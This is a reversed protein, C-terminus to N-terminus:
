NQSKTITFYLMINDTSWKDQYKRSNPVFNLKITDGVNATSQILSMVKSFCKFQFQKMRDNDMAQIVVEAFKDSPQNIEIIQGEISFKM